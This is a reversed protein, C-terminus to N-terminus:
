VGRQPQQCPPILNDAQIVDIVIVIRGQLLGAQRAEGAM